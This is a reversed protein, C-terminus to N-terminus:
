KRLGPYKRRQEDTMLSWREHALADAVVERERLTEAKRRNAELVALRMQETFLTSKNWDDLAAARMQERMMMEAYQEQETLPESEPLGAARRRERALMETLRTAAPGRGKSPDTSLAEEYTRKTYRDRITATTPETDPMPPGPLVWSAVGRPPSPPATRALERDAIAALRASILAAVPEGWTTGNTKLYQLYTQVRVTDITPLFADLQKFDPDSWYNKTYAWLVYATDRLINRPVTLNRIQGLNFDADKAVLFKQWGIRGQPDPRSFEAAGAHAVKLVGFYTELDPNFKGIVGGSPNTGRIPVFLDWFQKWKVKYIAAMVNSGFLTAYTTAKTNIRQRGGDILDVYQQCSSRVSLFQKSFDKANARLPASLKLLTFSNLQTSLEDDASKLNAPSLQSVVKRANAINDIDDKDVVLKHTMGADNAVTEATAFFAYKQDTKAPDAATLKTFDAHGGTTKQVLRALVDITAKDLSFLRETLDEVAARYTKVEADYTDLFDFIGIDKFYQQVVAPVMTANTRNNEGFASNDYATTDALIYNVADADTPLAVFQKIWDNLPDDLFAKVAADLASVVPPTVPTAPVVSPSPIPTPISPPPGAPTPAVAPPSPTPTPAPSTAADYADLIAFRGKYKERIVAPLSQRAAPGIHSTPYDSSHTRLITTVHIQDTIGKAAGGIVIQKEWDTLSKKFDNDLAWDSQEPSFLSNNTSKVGLASELTDLLAVVGTSNGLQTKFYHLLHTHVAKALNLPTVKAWTPLLAILASYQPFPPVKVNLRSTIFWLAAMYRDSGIWPVMKARPTYSNADLGLAQLNATAELLTKFAANEWLVDNESLGLAFTVAFYEVIDTWGCTCPLCFEPVSLLSELGYSAIIGNGSFNAVPSVVDLFAVQDTWAPVLTNKFWGQADDALLTTAANWKTIYNKVQDDKVSTGDICQMLNHISYIVAFPCAQGSQNNRTFVSFSGVKIPMAPLIRDLGRQVLDQRVQYLATDLFVVEVTDISSRYFALLTFHGSGYRGTTVDYPGAHFLPIQLLVTSPQPNLFFDLVAAHEPKSQAALSQDDAELWKLFAEGYASTTVVGKWAYTNAVIPLLADLEQQFLGSNKWLNEDTVLANLENALSKKANRVTAIYPPLERQASWRVLPSDLAFNWVNLGWAWVKILNAQVLFNSKSIYPNPNATFPSWSKNYRTRFWLQWDDQTYLFPALVQEVPTDLSGIGRLQIAKLGPYLATDRSLPLKSDLQNSPKALGDRITIVNDICVADVPHSLAEVIMELLLKEAEATANWQRSLYNISALADFFAKLLADM